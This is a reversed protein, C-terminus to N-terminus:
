RVCSVYNGPDFDDVISNIFGNDMYMNYHTGRDDPTGSWVNRITFGRRNEMGGVLARAAVYEALEAATPSHWRERGGSEYWAKLEDTTPLRWGRQGNITGRCLELAKEYSYSNPTVPMWTLGGGAAFANAGGFSIIAALVSVKILNKM